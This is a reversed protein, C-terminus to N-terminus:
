PMRYIFISTGARSIPELNRLWLYSDEPNREFGPATKGFAGQRLTASIAFYSGPPPAGKASNWPEFRSGLYYRPDGGGFYDFYLRDVNNKKAWVSLRKLDQGWDYNSDVAYRWGGETGGALAHFYSLYFPFTI